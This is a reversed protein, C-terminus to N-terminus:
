VTGRYIEVRNDEPDKFVFWKHGAEEADYILEAHENEKVKKRYKDFEEGVKFGPVFNNGRVIEQSEEFDAGPNYLGFLVGDFDFEILRGEEEEHLEPDILDEYFERMLELDSVKLSVLRLNPKM